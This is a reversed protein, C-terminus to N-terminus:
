GDKEEGNSSLIEREGGPKEGDGREAHIGQQDAISMSGGVKGRLENKDKEEKGPPLTPPKGEEVLQAENGHHEDMSSAKEDFRRLAPRIEQRHCDRNDTKRLKCKSEQIQMSLLKSKNSNNLSFIM